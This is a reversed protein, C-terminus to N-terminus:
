LGVLFFLNLLKAVIVYFLLGLFLYKSNKKIFSFFTFNFFLANFFQFVGFDAHFLKFFLNLFVWGPQRHRYESLDSIRHIANWSYSDYEYMYVPMDSGVNYEFGGIAIFLCLLFYFWEIKGNRKGGLDYIIVLGIILLLPIIYIM